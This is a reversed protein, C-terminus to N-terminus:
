PGVKPRNPVHVSRSRIEWDSTFQHINRMTICLLKQFFIHLMLREVDYRVWRLLAAEPVGVVAHPHGFFTSRPSCPLPDGPFIAVHRVRIIGRFDCGPLVPAPLGLVDAVGGKPRRVRALQATRAHPGAVAGHRIVGLIAPPREGRKELVERGRLVHLLGPLVHRGRHTRTRGRRWLGLRLPLSPRVSWAGCGSRGLAPVAQAARPRRPKPPRAAGSV